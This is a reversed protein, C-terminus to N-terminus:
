GKKIEIKYSKQVWNKFAALESNDKQALMQLLKPDKPHTLISSHTKARSKLPAQLPTQFTVRSVKLFIKGQSRHNLYRLSVEKRASLQISLGGQSNLSNLNRSPRSHQFEM